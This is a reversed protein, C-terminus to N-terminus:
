SYRQVAHIMCSFLFFSFSALLSIGSGYNSPRIHGWPSVHRCISTTSHWITSHIAAFVLTLMCSLLSSHKCHVLFQVAIFALCLWTRNLLLPTSLVSWEQCLFVILIELNCKMGSSGVHLPTATSEISLVWTSAYSFIDAFFLLTVIDM